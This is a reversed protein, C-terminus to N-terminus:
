YRFDRAQVLLAAMNAWKLSGLGPLSFTLPPIPMTDGATRTVSTRRIKREDRLNGSIDATYAEYWSSGPVLLGQITTDSVYRETRVWAYVSSTDTCTAELIDGVNVYYDLLFSWPALEYITPVFNQIQFGFTKLARQCSDTPGTLSHRTYIIYRIDAKSVTIGRWNITGPTGPAPVLHGYFAAEWVGEKRDSKSRLRRKRSKDGDLLDLTTEVIEKADSILPKIGFQLSLWEGAMSNKVANMRRLKLAQPTESKRLRVTRRVGDRTSKLTDLYKTTHKIMNALPNRLLKISERLEGVFLLGNMNYSEERIKNYARSLAQAEDAQDLVVHHGFGHQQVGTVYGNSRWVGEVQGTYISRQTWSAAHPEAVLVQVLDASFPSGAHQSNKIKSRYAEVKQGQKFGVYTYPANGRGYVGHMGNPLDFFQLKYM